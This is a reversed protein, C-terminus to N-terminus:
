TLGLPSVLGASENQVNSLIGKSTQRRLRIKKESVRDYSKFVRPQPLQRLGTMSRVSHHTCTQSETAEGVMTKEESIECKAFLLIVIKLKKRNQGEKTQFRNANQM